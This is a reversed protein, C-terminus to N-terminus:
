FFVEKVVSIYIPNRRLHCPLPSYGGVEAVRGKEADKFGGEWGRNYFFFASECNKANQMEGKRSGVKEERMKPIDCDRRIGLGKNETTETGQM